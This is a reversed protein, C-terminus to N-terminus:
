MGYFFGLEPPIEETENDELQNLVTFLLKPDQRALDNPLIGKEKFMTGYIDRACGGKGSESKVRKKLNGGFRCCVDELAIFM